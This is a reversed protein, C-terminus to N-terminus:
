DFNIAFGQGNPSAGFVTEAMIQPQRIEIILLSTLIKFSIKQLTYTSLKCNKLFNKVLFQKWM